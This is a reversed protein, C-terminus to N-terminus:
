QFIPLQNAKSILEEYKLCMDDYWQDKKRNSSLLEIGSLQFPGDVEKDKYNISYYVLDLQKVNNSSVTYVFFYDYFTHSNKMYLTDYPFDEAANYTYEKSKKTSLHTGTINTEEDNGNYRILYFQKCAGTEINIQTKYSPLMITKDNITIKYEYKQEGRSVKYSLPLFTNTINSQEKNINIQMFTLVLGIAGIAITGWGTATKLYRICVTGRRKVIKLFKICTSYIRKEKQKKM